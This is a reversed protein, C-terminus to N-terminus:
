KDHAHVNFLLSQIFYLMIMVIASVFVILVKNLPETWYGVIGTKEFILYATFASIGLAIIKKLAAVKGPLLWIVVGGMLWLIAVFQWFYLKVSEVFMM